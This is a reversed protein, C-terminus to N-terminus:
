WNRQDSPFTNISDEVEIKINTGINSQLENKLEYVFPDEDMYRYNKYKIVVLLNLVGNLTRIDTVRVDVLSDIFDCADFFVHEEDNEEDNMTECTNKLNDISNNVLEQFAGIRRNLTDKDIIEQIRYIQEQLNM